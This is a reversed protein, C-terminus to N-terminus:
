YSIAITKVEDCISEFFDILNGIANDDFIDSFM